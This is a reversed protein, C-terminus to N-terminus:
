FFEKVILDLNKRSIKFQKKHASNFSDVMECKRFDCKRFSEGAFKNGGNRLIIYEGQHNNDNSWKGYTTALILRGDNRVLNYLSSLVFSRNLNDILLLNNMALVLDFKLGKKQLYSFGDGCFFNIKKGFEKKLKEVNKKDLYLDIGYIDAPSNEALERTTEGKSCGWDLIDGSFNFLDYNGFTTKIRGYRTKRHRWYSKEDIEDM